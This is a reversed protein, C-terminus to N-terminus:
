SSKHDREAAEAILRLREVEPVDELRLAVDWTCVRLIRDVTRATATRLVLWVAPPLPALRVYDWVAQAVLATSVAAERLVRVV